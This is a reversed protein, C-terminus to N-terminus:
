RKVEELFPAIKDLFHIGIDDSTVVDHVKVERVQQISCLCQHNSAPSSVCIYIYMFNSSSGLSRIAMWGVLHQVTRWYVSSCLMSVIYKTRQGVGPRM